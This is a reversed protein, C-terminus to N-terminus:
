LEEDAGVLGPAFLTVRGVRAATAAFPAVAAAFAVILTYAILTIVKISVFLYGFLDGSCAVVEFKSKLLAFPRRYFFQLGNKKM